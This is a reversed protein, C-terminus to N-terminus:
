LKRRRRVATWAALGLAAITEPAFPFEPVGVGECPVPNGAQDYTKMHGTGPGTPNATEKGIEYYAVQITCGATEPIEFVDTTISGDTEVLQNTLHIQWKTGDQNKGKIWVDVYQGWLAEEVNTIVAKYSGGPVVVFFTQGAGGYEEPVGTGDPYQVDSLIGPGVDAFTVLMTVSM